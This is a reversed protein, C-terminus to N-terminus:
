CAPSVRPTTTPFAHATARSKPAGAAHQEARGVLAAFRPGGQPSHFDDSDKIETDLVPDLGHDIAQRLSSLAEVARGQRALLGSLEHTSM